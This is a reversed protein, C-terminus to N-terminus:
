EQTNKQFNKSWVNGPWQITPLISQILKSFARFDLQSSSTAKMLVLRKQFTMHKFYGGSPLHLNTQKTTIHSFTTSISGDVLDILLQYTYIVM